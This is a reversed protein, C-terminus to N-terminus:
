ASPPYLDVHSTAGSTSLRGGAVAASVASSFRCACAASAAIAQASAGSRSTYPISGFHDDDGNDGPIQQDVQGSPVDIFLRGADDAGGGIADLLLCHDDDNNDDGDDCIGTEMGPMAM